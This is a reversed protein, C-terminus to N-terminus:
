LKTLPKIGLARYLDGLLTRKTDDDLSNLDKARFNVAKPNMKLLIVFATTLEDDGPMNDPLNPNRLFPPLVRGGMIPTKDGNPKKSQPTPM